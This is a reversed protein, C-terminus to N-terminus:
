KYKTLQNVVKRRRPVLNETFFIPGWYYHTRIPLLHRGDMLGQVYKRNTFRVIVPATKDGERKRLRHCAAIEYSSFHVGISEGLNIVFRELVQQDYSDPINHLEINERRIYQDLEEINRQNQRLDNKLKCNEQELTQVRQLLQEVKKELAGM